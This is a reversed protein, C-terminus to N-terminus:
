LFVDVLSTFTESVRHLCVGKGVENCIMSGHQMAAPLSNGVLGDILQQLRIRNYGSASHGAQVQQKM